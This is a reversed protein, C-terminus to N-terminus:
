FMTPLQLPCHTIVSQFPPGVAAPREGFVPTLEELLRRINVCWGPDRQCFDLWFSVVLQGVVLCVLLCNFSPTLEELLWRINVCWGPDRKM